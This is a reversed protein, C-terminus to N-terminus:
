KCVCLLCSKYHVFIANIIIDFFVVHLFLKLFHKSTGSWHPETPPGGDQLGLLQRNSEWDPCMGPNHAMDRTPAQSLCGISTERVFQYKEEERHRERGKERFIFLYFRLLSLFIQILSFIYLINRFSVFYTKIMPLSLLTM